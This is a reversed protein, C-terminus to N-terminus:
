HPSNEPQVSPAPTSPVSAGKNLNCERCLVQGNNPTGSGNNSQPDMHDVHAENNPPKVGSTHQSAQHVDTKCNACKMQGNNKVKNLDKVVTKGAKTFGKGPRQKKSLNDARKQVDSVNTNKQQPKKGYNYGSKQNNVANATLTVGAAATVVGAEALTGGAAAAPLGGVALTGGSVATVTLGASALGLGAATGGTGGKMLAGGLVLAADDTKKLADNYDSANAPHYMDRLATSGPVINTATGILTGMLKDTWGAGDLDNKSIPNNDMGIYPSVDEYEEEKPDVSLWRGLRPDYQRELTTYDNGLGKIDNDKEMGNFGHRYVAANYTRNPM